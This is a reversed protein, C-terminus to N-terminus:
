CPNRWRLRCCKKKHFLKKFYAPEMFQLDVVVPLGLLCVTLFLLIILEYHQVMQLMLQEEFSTAGGKITVDNLTVNAGSSLKFVRFGSPSSNYRGMDDLGQDQFLYKM